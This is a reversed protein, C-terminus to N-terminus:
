TVALASSFCIFSIVMLHVSYSNIAQGKSNSFLPTSTIQLTTTVCLTRLNCFGDCPYDEDPIGSSTDVTSPVLEVVESYFHQYILYWTHFHSKHQNTTPSSCNLVYKM